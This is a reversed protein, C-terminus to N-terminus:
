SSMEVDEDDEPRMSSASYITGCPYRHSSSQQSLIMSLRVLKEEAEAPDIFQGWTDDEMSSSDDEFLFMSSCALAARLDVKQKSDRSSSHPSPTLSTKNCIKNIDELRMSAFLSLVSDDQPQAAAACHTYRARASEFDKRQQYQQQQHHQQKYMIEPRGSLFRPM